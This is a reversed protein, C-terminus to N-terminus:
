IEKMSWKLLFEHNGDMGQIPSERIGEFVFEPNKKKINRWVLRIAKLQDTREKVIGKVLYSPPLEFQPKILSIGFFKLNQDQKVLNGLYPFVQTLSIFSLDMTVFIKSTRIEIQSPSLDKVHTRDIVSVRSDNAIKQALLGYGVDVAYVHKVEKELLVQTFGGTSSGLDLAVLNSVFLNPFSDFAGLLKYAGRSVYEKIKTRIRVQDTKFILTGVKTIVKDNV